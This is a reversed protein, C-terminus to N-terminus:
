WQMLLKYTKFPYKRSILPFCDIRSTRLVIFRYFFNNLKIKIRCLLGVDQTIQVGMFNVM